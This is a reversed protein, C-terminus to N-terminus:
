LVHWALWWALASILAACSIPERVIREARSESRRIARGRIDPPSLDARLAGLEVAAGVTADAHPKFLDFFKGEQPLLGMITHERGANVNM